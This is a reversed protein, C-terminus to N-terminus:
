VYMSFIILINKFYKLKVQESAPPLSYPEATHVELKDMVEQLHSLEMLMAV